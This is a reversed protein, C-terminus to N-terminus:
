KEIIDGLRFGNYDGDYTVYVEKDLLGSFDRSTQIYVTRDRMVLMLNGKKLNDSIKLTGEWTNEPNPAPKVLKTQDINEQGASSQPTFNESTKKTRSFWIVGALAIVVLAIGIYQQKNSLTM